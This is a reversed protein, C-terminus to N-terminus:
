PSPAASVGDPIPRRTEGNDVAGEAAPSAEKGVRLRGEELFLMRDALHYYRDDHTIALVAKGRAKLEPLLQTYFVNKFSPDQDAAWEDFVYFPRDELYAILLALRKRQGQSLRTTTSFVGNHIMVRRDLHLLALYERAKKELDPSSLGLLRPFLHVDSFVVTFLQRYADLRWAPVPEGDLRIEGTQPVYLGTLVKAFTTKGSGNGGGLFVLEGPRFAVDLPGLTFGQEDREHRYAHTVGVLEIQKFSTIPAAPLDAGKEAAATLDLGLGQVKTLSAQAQAIQPLVFKLSGLPQMMFFIVLVYTGVMRREDPLFAPLGLLIVGLLIFLLLRGWTGALALFFRSLGGQKERADLTARLSKELFAERRPRHLKLEKVGELLHRLQALLGEQGERNQSFHRRARFLLLLQLPLGAGLVVVVVLFTHWSLYALYGLCALVIALNAFFLPVANLGQVIVPVDQTLATQLRNPGLEELRKLPAALVRESLHMTLQAMARRSLASLLLQAILKSLLAGLCVGVFAWILAASVTAAAPRGFRGMLPAGHALLAWRMFVLVGVTSLGGVLSAVTALAVTTRSARLLFLLLKM